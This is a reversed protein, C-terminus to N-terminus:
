SWDVVIYEMSTAARTICPIPRTIGPIINKDIKSIDYLKGDRGTVMTVTKHEVSCDPFLIKVGNIIEVLLIRDRTLPYLQGYVILPPVAANDMPLPYHYQSDTKSANVAGWYIEYVINNILERNLNELPKSRYSRMYERSIPTLYM